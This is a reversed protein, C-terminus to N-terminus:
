NQNDLPNLDINYLSSIRMRNIRCESAIKLLAAKAKESISNHIDSSGEFKRMDLCKRVYHYLDDSKESKFFNYYDDVSFSDMHRVDEFSQSEKFTISKVVDALPREDIEKSAWLDHLRSLLYKDKLDKRFITHKLKMLAKVEDESNHQDFYEDILADAITDREFERLTEVATQLDNSSLIKINSRFSNVLKDVFEQENDAFSNRYINWVKSYSADGQRVRVQENKKALVDAFKPRDIYGTKVFDALCKDVDDTRFYNYSRLVEDWKKIEPTIEENKYESNIYRNVVSYDLIFKIPPADSAKDYYSWVYLILSRLVEEAAEKEIGKLLPTIDEIFRRIRQLIRINKINLILCCNKILDYHRLPPQFIYTFAEEATILFLVERDIIKEGHLKYEEPSNGELREDNMILLVKCDRQEKLFAAISFVDKIELNNGKREIDDFCILTNDLLYYLYESVMGGTYERLKSNKEFNKVLQKFNATLKDVRKMLKSANSEVRSAIIAIKLEELSHVGFLSVYSYYDRGVCKKSMSDEILKQWFFTKGIGWKGKVVLLENHTDSIFNEITTKIQELSM